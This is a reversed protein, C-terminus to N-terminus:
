KNVHVHLQKVTFRVKKTAMFSEWFLVFRNLGFVDSFTDILNVDANWKNHIYIKSLYIKLKVKIKTLSKNIYQWIQFEEAMQLM